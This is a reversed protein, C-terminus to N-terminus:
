APRYNTDTLQNHVLRIKNKIDNKIFKNGNKEPCSNTSKLWETRSMHYQTVNVNTRQITLLLHNFHNISQNILPVRLGGCFLVNQVLCSDNRGYQVDYGAVFRILASDHTVYKQVFKIFRCCFEEFVPLCQRLLLLTSCHANYPLNWIRRRKQEM